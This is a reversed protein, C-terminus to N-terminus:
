KAKDQWRFGNSEFKKQSDASLLAKQLRAALQKSKSEKGVAFPQVALACPLDIAIADLEDKASTANSIYAVIADLSGTRLQNVLLDGTPSQVAVNRRVPAYLGATQLTTKTLVGLACQKEHGVGVRLGERGLDKLENIHQPNGKKVLIVLQNLSVDTPDFFLDEVQKMFSKDCAFYADPKQGARMQAVLIGCGNYVRTVRCGERREFAAITEEIAPRLMAGASLNLEPNESWTDGAAPTFGSKEIQKLGKDAAAVYRAFRLAASADVSSKLVSVSMNARAGELEKLAVPEVDPFQQLLADWIFGADATGLKVNTAVDNVTGTFVATQKKLEDWRGIKQFVERAVKGAAAADPNAQALKLGPVLLDKLEKIGKPNGKKVALVLRMQALPLVEAILDKQRAVGLYSDDAPLWLDGRKSIEINALLTQSGGFQLQIPVGYEKEYDKAVAELPAKLGAACYVLLPSKSVTSAPKWVLALTLAVLLLVSALFAMVVFKYNQLLGM